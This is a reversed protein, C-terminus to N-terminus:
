LHFLRRDAHSYRRDGSFLIASYPTDRRSPISITGRRKRGSLIAVRGAERTGPAYFLRGAPTGVVVFLVLTSEARRANRGYPLGCPARLAWYRDVAWRYSLSDGRRIYRSTLTNWRDPAQRDPSARDSPPIGLELRGM